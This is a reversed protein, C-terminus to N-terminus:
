SSARLTGRTARTPARQRRAHGGTAGDRAGLWAGAIVLMAMIIPTRAPYDVASAIAILLVVASGARALLGNAGDDKLWAKATRWLWWGAAAILLLLGGLGHELLTELFDNHAHNFYNVRLLSFPENLRFLPDFGGAGIGFPFYLYIMKVVTPAAGVRLDDAANETLLRDIGFARGINFSLFILSCATGIAVLLLVPLAWSPFRAMALRIRGLALLVGAVGGLASLFLGARSGSILILLIFTMVLGLALPGRWGVGARHPQLCAWVPALLCGIAMLLAFHNRNAFVGTAEGPADNILPNDFSAGTTQVFGVLAALMIFALVGTPLLRREDDRLTAVLVVMALPVLLGGLANLAGSPVIALPRWPQAARALEAAEAFLARGPLALWVSPPLPVLELIVLLIAAALLIVPGAFSRIRPRPGFLVALVICLTAIARIVPQGAVDAMSAGGAAGLALAFVALLLLSLSPLSRRIAPRSPRSGEHVTRAALM